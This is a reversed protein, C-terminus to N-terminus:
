RQKGRVFGLWGGGMNNKAKCTLRTSPFAPSSARILLLQLGRQDKQMRNSRNAMRWSTVVIRNLAQREKYLEKSKARGKVRLNRFDVSLDM